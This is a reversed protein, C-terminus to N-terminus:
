VTDDVSIVPVDFSAGVLSVTITGDFAPAHTGVGSAALVGDVGDPLDDTTLDIQVGTTEDLTQKALAMTEEPTVTDKAAEDKSCGTLAGFMSVALVVSVALSRRIMRGPIM